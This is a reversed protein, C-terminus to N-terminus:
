EISAIDRAAPRRPHVSARQVGNPLLSLVADHITRLDSEPLGHEGLASRTEEFDLSSRRGSGLRAVLFAIRDGIRILAPRLAEELHSRAQSRSESGSSLSETSDDPGAADRRQLEDAQIRKAAEIQARFLRQVAARPPAPVGSAASEREVSVWAAALVRAEVERNEVAIELVAKARAVSIMLALREDLSALLAAVPEATLRSPLGHRERLAALQGGTEAEVLWLDFDRALARAAPDFLAAKRDTTLPGIRRLSATTRAEWHPAELTDTLVARADGDLMRGLVDANRGVGEIDAQPFLRRAVRELHGGGNVALRIEARDLDEPAALDSSEPVLVLAGSTTLPVSFLGEISRDPRVTVGSIAFDFRGAQLDTLLSPWRFRVWEIELGRADAFAKAVDVSFGQPIGSQGREGVEWDSFPKYDGSTAVRLRSDGLLADSSSPFPSTSRCALGVFIFAFLIAYHRLMSRMQGRASYDKLESCKFYGPAMGPLRSEINVRDCLEEVRPARQKSLMRMLSRELLMVRLLRLPM